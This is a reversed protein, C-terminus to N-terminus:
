TRYRLVYRAMHKIVCKGIIVQMYKNIDAEDNANFFKYKNMDTEYIFNFFILKNIDVDADHCEIM